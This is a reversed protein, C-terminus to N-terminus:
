RRGGRGGVPKTETPVSRAATLAEVNAVATDLLPGTVKHRRLEDLARHARDLETNPHTPRKQYKAGRFPKTSVHFGGCRACDYVHGGHKEVRKQAEHETFRAKRQCDHWASSM